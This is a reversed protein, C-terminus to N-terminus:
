TIIIIRLLSFLVAPFGFLHLTERRILWLVVVVWWWWFFNTIRTLSNWSYNWWGLRRVGTIVNSHNEMMEHHIKEWWLDLIRVFRCLSFISALLLLPILDTWLNVRRSGCPLDNSREVQVLIYCGRCACCYSFSVIVFLNKKKKKKTGRSSNRSVDSVFFFNESVTPRSFLLFNKWILFSPM